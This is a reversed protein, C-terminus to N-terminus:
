EPAQELAERAIRAADYIDRPEGGFDGFAALKILAAHARDHKIRLPEIEKEAAILKGEAEVWKSRLFDSEGQLREIENLARQCDGCASLGLRRVVDSPDM